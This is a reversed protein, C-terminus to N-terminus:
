TILPFGCTFKFKQLWNRSCFYSKEVYVSTEVILLKKQLMNMKM